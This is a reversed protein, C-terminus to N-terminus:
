GEAVKISTSGFGATHPRPVSRAVVIHGTYRPRSTPAGDRLGSRDLSLRREPQGVHGTPAKNRLIALTTLFTNSSQLPFAIFRRKQSHRRDLRQFGREKWASSPVHPFCKRGRFGNLWSGFSLTRQGLPIEFRNEKRKLSNAFHLFCM